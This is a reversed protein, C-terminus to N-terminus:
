GEEPINKIESYKFVPGNLCVYKNGFSCHQCKGIGCRMRRELSVYINDDTIKLKNLEKCMSKYMIPPGCMIVKTNRCDVQITSCLTTVLGINKQWNKDPQDVTLCLKIFKNWRKFESFFLLDNPTRAGYLLYIKNFKPRFTILYEVLSAIPAIGTGGAVMIIDKNELEQIPFGNGFPGRLGIKDGVKLCDLANTVVGVRRVCIKIEKNRFPSSAIGFPAEGYGSLSVMIFQGPIFSFIKRGDLELTYSKILSTFKRIEKITAKQPLYYNNM